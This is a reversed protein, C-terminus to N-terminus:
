RRAFRAERAADFALDSEYDCRGCEGWKNDHPCLPPPEEPPEPEPMDEFGPPDPECFGLQAFTLFFRCECEECKFAQGPRVDRIYETWPSECRPCQPPEPEEPPEFYSEFM